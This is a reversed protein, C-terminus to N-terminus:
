IKGLHHITITSFNQSFYEKVRTLVANIMVIPFVRNRKGRGEPQPGVPPGAQFDRESQGGRNEANTM